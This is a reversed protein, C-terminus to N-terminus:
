GRAWRSSPACRRVSSSTSRTRSCRGSRARWSAHLGAGCRGARQAAPWRASPRWREGTPRILGATVLALSSKGAGNPGTVAVAEGSRLTLDTPALADRTAAPYRLRVGAARVLPPVPRPSRLGAYSPTGAPCGCGARRSRRETGGSSRRPRGTPSSAAAPSSCSRGTSWTSSTTWGTSSWCPLRAPRTWSASSGPERVLAAGAPDLNATVEDLLLLGPRLALIGAIALRQQEGGSLAGTPTDRGGPFGVAALAEDVRAWIEDAPVGRNELGFAVDDGARNMVIAAETDQMVLGARARAARAHQGDLRIAGEVEGADPDLLGALGALLTSKGSGSPGLLLVREGPELRLDVGRLAWARRGAHRWGWGRVELAVPTPRM